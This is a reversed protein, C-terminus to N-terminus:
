EFLVPGGGFLQVYLFLGLDLGAVEFRGAAARTAQAVAFFSATDGGPPVVSAPLSSLVASPVTTGGASAPESCVFVRGVGTTQDTSLGLLLVFETDDDVGAWQLHLDESRRIRDFQTPATLVAPGPINLTVQFPGVDSGGAGTVTFDGAVFFGPPAEQDSGFDFFGAPGTIRLSEGAHLQPPEFPDRPFIDDETATFVTCSGLSTTHLQLSARDLTSSILADLSYNRAEAFIEAETGVGFTATITGLRLGNNREALMLDNSSLSLADDCYHGNRSIAISGYNSVIGDVRVSVSVFCGFVNDPVAFNIQDVAPFQPSRGAYQPRVVVRGGLVIEVNVALNGVPPLASDDGDIPGLGSGWLILVQGPRAAEILSNLRVDTPSHFNQVIAPGFGAQSRTFIGFASRVVTVRVPASAEGEFTVVLAGEGVPTNSPLVCALQGASTFILFASVRVREVTVEISTGALEVPLPLRQSQVLQMPGLGQGFVVFMGGQALGENPLEDRSFSAANLVGGQAVVPAASLSCSLWLAAAAIWAIRSWVSSGSFTRLEVAKM